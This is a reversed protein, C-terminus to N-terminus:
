RKICERLIMINEQKCGSDHVSPVVGSVSLATFLHLSVPFIASHNSWRYDQFLELHGRISGELSLRLTIINIFGKVRLSTFIM